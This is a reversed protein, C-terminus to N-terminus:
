VQKKLEQVSKDAMTAAYLEILLEYRKRPVLVMESENVKDSSGEPAAKM